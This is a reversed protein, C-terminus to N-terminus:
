YKLAFDAGPYILIGSHASAHKGQSILNYGDLHYLSTDSDSSLWSEQICIANLYCNQNSLNSIFKKFQDFKLGLSQIYINLISFNIINQLFVSELLEQTVYSSESFGLENDDDRTM